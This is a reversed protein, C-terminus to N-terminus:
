RFIEDKVLINKYSEEVRDESLIEIPENVLREEVEEVEFEVNVDKQIEQREVLEEDLSENNVDEVIDQEESLELEEKAFIPLIMTSALAIIGIIKFIKMTESRWKRYYLAVMSLEYIREVSNITNVNQNYNTKQSM